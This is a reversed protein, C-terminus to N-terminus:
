QGGRKPCEGRMHGKEKCIFCKGESMLKAIEGKKLGSVKAFPRRGHNQQIANLMAQQSEVLRTLKDIMTSYHITLASTVISM